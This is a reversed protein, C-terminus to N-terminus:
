IDEVHIIVSEPEQDYAERFMKRVTEQWSSFDQETLEEAPTEGELLAELFPGGQGDGAMIVVRTVANEPTIHEQEM